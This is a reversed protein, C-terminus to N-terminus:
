FYKFVEPDNEPMEISQEQSEKFNGDLAARFYAATNCFLGTQLSFEKKDPGVKVQVM